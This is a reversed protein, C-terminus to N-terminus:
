HVLTTVAQYDQEVSKQRTQEQISSLKGSINAFMQQMEQLLFDNEIRLRKNEQQLETVTKTLVKNANKLKAIEQQLPQFLSTQQQLYHEHLETNQAILISKTSFLPNDIVSELHILLKNYSTYPALKRWVISTNNITTILYNRVATANKCKLTESHVTRVIDKIEAPVNIEYVFTQLYTKLAAVVADQIQKLISM